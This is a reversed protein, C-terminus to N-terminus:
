SLTTWVCEAATWRSPSAPPSDGEAWVKGTVFEHAAQRARRLEQLDVLGDTYREALDVYGLLVEPVYDILERCVACGLLRLQRETAQEVADQIMDSTIM